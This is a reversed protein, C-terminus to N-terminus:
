HPNRNPSPPADYNPIRVNGRLAIDHFEANMAAEDAMVTLHPLTFTVNVM